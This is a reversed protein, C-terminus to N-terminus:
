SVCPVGHPIQTPCLTNSIELLWDPNLICNFVTLKLRQGVFRVAPYLRDLRGGWVCVCVNM